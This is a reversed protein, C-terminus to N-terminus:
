KIYLLKHRAIEFEELTERGARGRQYGYTQERHRHKTSLKMQTVKQIGCTLLIM